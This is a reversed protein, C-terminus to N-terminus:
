LGNEIMKSYRHKRYDLRLCSRCGLIQSTPHRYLVGVRKNCLPCSFWFRTGGFGTDSKNLSINYGDAELSSKILFEKIKENSARVFDSVKIKQCQDTLLKKGFDNPNMIKM